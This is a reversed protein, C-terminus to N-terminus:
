RFATDESYLDSVSDKLETDQWNMIEDEHHGINAVDLPVSVSMEVLNHAVTGTVGECPSMNGTSEDGSVCSRKFAELREELRQSQKYCLIGSLVLLLSVLSIAIGRLIVTNPGPESRVLQTELDDPFGENTSNTETTVNSDTPDLTTFLVESSPFGSPSSKPMISPIMSPRPSPEFSTSETPNITRTPQPTHPLLANPSLTPFDTFGLYYGKGGSYSKSSKSSSSEPVYGPCDEVRYENERDRFIEDFIMEYDIPRNEIEDVRDNKKKGDTGGKGKSKSSKSSKTKSKSSKTFSGKGRSKSKSKSKGQTFLTSIILERRNNTV